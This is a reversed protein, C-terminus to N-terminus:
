IYKVYDPYEEYDDDILARTSPEVIEGFVMKNVKAFKNNDKNVKLFYHSTTEYVYGRVSGITM